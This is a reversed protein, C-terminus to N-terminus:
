NQQNRKNRFLIYATAGVLLLIGVLLFAIVKELTNLDAIDVTCIKGLCLTFLCLASIRVAKWDKKLGLTLIVSAFLAWWVSLGGHRFDHLVTSKKLFLYIEQSSYILLSLTAASFYICSYQKGPLNCFDTVSKRLIWGAGFLSLTYLGTRFFRDAFSIRGPNFFAPDPLLIILLILVYLICGLVFLLYEKNKEAGFILIVALISWTGSIWEPSNTAFPISAAFALVACADYVPYIKEADSRKWRLWFAELLTLVAIIVAFLSNECRDSIYPIDLVSLVQLGLILLVIVSFLPILWETVGNNQQKKRIIPILTYVGSNAMLFLICWININAKHSFVGASIVTVSLLFSTWELSRWRHIRSVILICASTAAMYGLLFPINGSGDSLMLPTLFAGTCGTLAVPLLNKKASLFMAGISTLVMLVFATEVSLIKYLRYGSFSGMYLTVIGISLIAIAVPHFRKQLGYYGAACLLLGLAFTIVIRVIPPFLSNEISYKLFFGIACLLILIGCRLLWTTAIGYETVKEEHFSGTLLWNVFTNKKKTKVPISSTKCNKSEPKDEPIVSASTDIQPSLKQTSTTVPASPTSISRNQNKLMMEIRSALITLNILLIIVILLLVIVASEM